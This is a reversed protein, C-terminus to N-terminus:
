ILRGNFEWPMKAGKHFNCTPCAIVLNSVENSGGKALPIRHDVHYGNALDKECWWCKNKQNKRMEVITKRTWYGKANRERARRRASRAVALEKAREPNNRKWRDVIIKKKDYDRKARMRDYARIKDMRKAKSRKNVDPNTERYSKVKTKIHECNKAYYKKNYEKRERLKGQEHYCTVCGRNKVYRESIHGKKCPKGTFYLKLGLQKALALSVFEKQESSM